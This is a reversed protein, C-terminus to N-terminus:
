NESDNGHLLGDLDWEETGLDTFGILEWNSTDFM